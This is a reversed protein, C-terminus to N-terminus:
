NANILKEAGQKVSNLEARLQNYQETKDELERELDWKEDELRM